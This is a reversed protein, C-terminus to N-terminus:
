ERQEEKKRKTADLILKPDIGHLMMEEAIQEAKQREVSFHQLQFRVAGKIAKSPTPYGKLARLAELDDNEDKNFWVTMRREKGASVEMASTHYILDVKKRSKKVEEVQERLPQKRNRTKKIEGTEGDSENIETM